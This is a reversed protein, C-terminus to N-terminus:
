IMEIPAVVDVKMEELDRNLQPFDPIIQQDEIDQGIINTIIENVIDKFYSDENNGEIDM